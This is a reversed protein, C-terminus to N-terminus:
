THPELARVAVALGDVVKALRDYDLSEPGDSRRHYHPQMNPTGAVVMIAPIDRNWFPAHDSRDLISAAPMVVSALYRLVGQPRPDAVRIAPMGSKILGFAAAAGIRKSARNEVLLIFDRRNKREIIQKSAPRFTLRAILPLAQAGETEDFYGIM